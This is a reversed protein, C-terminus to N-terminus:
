ALWFESTPLEGKFTKIIVKTEYKKIFNILFDDIIRLEQSNIIENKLSVLLRAGAQYVTISFKKGPFKIQLDRDLKAKIDTTYRM